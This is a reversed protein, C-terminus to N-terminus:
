IVESKSLHSPSEPNTHEPSPSHFNDFSNIFKTTLASKQPIFRSRQSGFAPRKIDQIKFRIIKSPISPLSIDFKNSM